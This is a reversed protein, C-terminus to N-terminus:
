AVGVGQCLLAVHSQDDCTAFAFPNEDAVLDDDRDPFQKRVTAHSEADVGGSVNADNAFFQRRPFLLMPMSAVRCTQIFTVIIRTMAPANM